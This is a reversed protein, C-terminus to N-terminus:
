PVPSLAPPPCLAVLLRLRGAALRRPPRRRAPVAPLAQRLVHPRSVPSEPSLRANLSPWGASGAAGARRLGGPRNEKTPPRSLAGGEGLDARAASRTRLQLSLLSVPHPEEQLLGPPVGRRALVAVRPPHRHRRPLAEGAGGA